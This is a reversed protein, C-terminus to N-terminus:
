KLKLDNSFPYDSRRLIFRWLPWNQVFMYKRIPTKIVVAIIGISLLCWIAAVENMNTTLAMSLSPGILFHYLTLRWSGYLLPMFFVAIKYTPYGTLVYGWFPHAAIPNTIGNVPVEWAIHWNGRSSCLQDSCFFYGLICQGAWKFPYLQLLMFIASAFCVGYVWWQVKHRVIAPIFYMALMNIFFPQFTIHLYGLLTAIQNSPLNCQDIVSYTLGQLLEMSSFYVLPLWLMYSEKKYAAIGAFMFGGAALALSAEGSWCM